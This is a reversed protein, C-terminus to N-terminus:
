HDSGLTDLLTVQFHNPILLNSLIADPRSQNGTSRHILSPQPDSEMVVQFSSQSIVDAMEYGQQSDFSGWTSSHLNLDGMLLSNRPLHLLFSPDLKVNPPKYLNVVTIWKNSLFVRIAQYESPGLAAVAAPDLRVLEANLRHHVLLLLGGGTRQARDM